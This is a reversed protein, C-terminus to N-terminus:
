GIKRVKTTIPQSKLHEQLKDQAERLDTESVISYRDFISRTKHGTIAMCVTEPVGSRRLNRAATRRFDHFHKAPIGAANCAIAWSKRFDGIQHGFRHFVQAALQTAPGPIPRVAMCREVLEWLEGELALLRGQANKSHEPRLRIVKGALDVDAWTLSAIEGKRWGTLYAFRAFDQLYDPLHALVAEFESHEFFGKRERGLESLKRLSPTSALIGREVGMRLAQSLMSIARNMTAVSLANRAKETEYWADVLAATIEKARYQGFAAKARALHSEAPKLGRLERLRFDAQLAELLEGATIKDNAPGVFKRLGLKDAGCERLRHRLFRRAAVDETQGTSERSTSGNHSYACWWFQSDARRYIRGSGRMPNKRSPKVYRAQVTVLRTM